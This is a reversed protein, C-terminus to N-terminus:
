LATNQHTQARDTVLFPGRLGQSAPSYGVCLEAKIHDQKDLSPSVHYPDTGWVFMLEPCLWPLLNWTCHWLGQDLSGCPAWMECIGFWWFVFAEEQSWSLSRWPSCTSSVQRLCKQRKDVIQPVAHEKGDSLTLSFSLFHFVQTFEGVCTGDEGLTYGLVCPATRSVIPYSPAVPGPPPQAFQPESLGVSTDPYVPEPYAPAEPRAYSQTYLSRPLCLYGGNQNVCRMDLRCADPVTRCEDVDTYLLRRTFLGYFWNSSWVLVVCSM